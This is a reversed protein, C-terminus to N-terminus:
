YHFWVNMSIHRLDVNPVHGLPCM